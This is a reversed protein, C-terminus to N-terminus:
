SLTSIGSIFRPWSASSIRARAVEDVGDAVVLDAAQRELGGLEGLRDAVQDGLGLADLDVQGLRRCGPLLRGILVRGVAGVQRQRHHAAADLQHRRAGLAVRGLGALVEGAVLLDAPARAAAVVGHELGHLAEQGVEPQAALVDHEDGADAAGRAEGVVELGVAHVRDM